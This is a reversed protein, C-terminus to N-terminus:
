DVGLLEAAEDRFRALEGDGPEEEEMWAVAEDFRLRAEEPRELRALAMAAFLGDHPDRERLEASRALAELAEEWEGARYLAAGLTNWLFGEGPERGVAERALAVAREPDRLELQPSTALIWALRNM